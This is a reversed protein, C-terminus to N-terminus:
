LPLKQVVFGFSSGPVGVAYVATLTKRDVKFKPVSAVKAGSAAVRVTVDYRAGLVTRDAQQGNSIPGVRTTFLRPAFRDFPYLGLDVNVAPAAAAHRISLRGTLFGTRRTDNTFVNITPAGAADFSAVASLNKGAPVALTKSFVVENPSLVGDDSATPAAVYVDYSAPALSLPGATTGFTFDDAVLGAAAPGAGAAGAYVDVKTGHDDLPLGHVVYVKSPTSSPTSSATASVAAPATMILAAAAISGAMLKRV